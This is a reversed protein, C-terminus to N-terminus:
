PGMPLGMSRLFRAGLGFYSSEKELRVEAPGGGRAESSVGGYVNMYVYM